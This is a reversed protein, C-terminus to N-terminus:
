RIAPSGGNLLKLERFSAVLSLVDAEVPHDEPVDFERRLEQAIEEVTHFGDCRQWVFEATANLVHVRSASEDYLLSEGDVHRLALEANRRPHVMTM